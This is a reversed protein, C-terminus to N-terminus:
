FLSKFWEKVMRFVYGAVRRDIEALKEGAIKKAFAANEDARFCSRNSICLVPEGGIEGRGFVEM